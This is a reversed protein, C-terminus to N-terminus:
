GRQVQYSVNGSLNLGLFIGTAVCVLVLGLQVDGMIWGGVMFMVFGGIGAFATAFRAATVGAFTAGLIWIFEWDSMSANIKWWVPLIDLNDVTANAVTVNETTEIHEFEATVQVVVNVSRNSTANLIQRSQNVTIADTNSSSVSAQGTVDSGEFEVTYGRETGHAMYSQVELTLNGVAWVGEHHGLTRQLVRSGDSRSSGGSVFTPSSRVWDAPTTFSWVEQGSQVDIAYVNTDRSGVYVTGGSVTPSSQINNGTSFNWEESGSDSDIAYLNNDNSGIYVTGDVVTPSSIVSGSTSFNWEEDGSEADIAYVNSDHSGVYVIGGIVAPSSQVAGGTSFNWEEDGSDADFAYVTNDNSGVYVTGTAVNPSSRVSNGTTHRWAQSGNDAYFAYLNNDDSGIYVIGDVVTPSSHSEGALSSSWEESGTSENVAYLNGDTSGFYVTDDVITPGSEISQGTSFNWREAGTEADLAHLRNNLSPVFVTGNAVTASGEVFNFGSTFNWREDGSSADIAFFSDDLDGVYVTGNEQASAVGVGGDLAMPQTALFAFAGVLVVVRLAIRTAARGRGVGRRDAPQVGGGLVARIWCAKLNSGNM